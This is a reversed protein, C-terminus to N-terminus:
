PAPSPAQGMAFLPIEKHPEAPDNSILLLRGNAATTGPALAGLVVDVRVKAANSENRPDPPEVKARFPGDTVSAERLRFDKRTSTVSVIVSSGDPQRLSFVPNTPNVTLNGLVRCSFPLSLERPQALGTSVLVRGVHTGVLAARNRLRLGQPQGPGGALVEAEPGGKGANDIAIVSLRAREALTGTLRVETSAPKGFATELEVLTSDFAVLPAIQARLELRVMPARPDNSWVDVTDAFKGARDRTECDIRLAASGGPSIPPPIAAVGCSYSREARDIRLAASGLNAFTFVHSLRDGTVVSGFDYQRQDCVLAPAPAPATERQRCSILALAFASLRLPM